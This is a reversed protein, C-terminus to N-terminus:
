CSGSVGWLFHGPLVLGVFRRPPKRHCHWDKEVFPQRLTTPRISQFRCGRSSQLFGVGAHSGEGAPHSKGQSQTTREVKCPKTGEGVSSRQCGPSALLGEPQCFSGPSLRSSSSSVPRGFFVVVLLVVHQLLWLIGSRPGGLGKPRHVAIIGVEILALITHWQRILVKLLLVDILGRSQPASIFSHGQVKSAGTLPPMPLQRDLAVRGANSRSSMCRSDVLCFKAVGEAQRDLLDELVLAVLEGKGNLVLGFLLEGQILDISLHALLWLM